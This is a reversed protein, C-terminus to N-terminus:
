SCNRGFVSFSLRNVPAVTIIKYDGAGLPECTIRTVSVKEDASCLALRVEGAEGLFYRGVSSKALYVPCTMAGGGGRMTSSPSNMIVPPVPRKSCAVPRTGNVTYTLGIEGGVLSACHGTWNTKAPV